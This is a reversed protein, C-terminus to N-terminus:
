GDLLFWAFFSNQHGIRGSERDGFAPGGFM